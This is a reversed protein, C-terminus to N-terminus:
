SHSPNKGQLVCMGVLSGFLFKQSGFIFCKVWDVLM